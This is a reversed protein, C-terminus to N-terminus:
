NGGICEKEVGVVAVVAEAVAGGCELEAEPVEGHVVEADSYGGELGEGSCWM